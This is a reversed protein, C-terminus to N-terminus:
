MMTLAVMSVIGATLLAVLPAGIRWYDGFRYGGAGMVMLNVPHSFPTLMSTSTALAVAMAFARPDAGAEVAVSIAMPVMVLTTAAGGPLVQTLIVTLVTLIALLVIPDNVRDILSRAVTEAAGSRALALSMPLMGGVLVVSRWDISRYAEDTTLCRSLLMVTAGTFLVLATSNRFVVSAVLTAGLISLAMPIKEVILEEPSDDQGILVLDQEALLAQFASRPGQMLLLDGFRLKIDALDGEISDGSRLISLVSIGGHNERFALGKLSNGAYRSRPPIVAEMLAVRRSALYRTPRKVRVLDLGAADLVERERPLGDLILVDGADLRLTSEPARRQSGDPHVVAIVVGGLLQAIGSVGLTAGVLPSTPRILVSQLRRKMQYVEELSRRPTAGRLPTARDPLLHGSFFFLYLLGALALPGGVPAFDMLGFPELGKQRLIEGAVINSTTLLTAMGGLQTALGLPLLLKSPSIQKRRLADSVGPLLVASAAVNNMVLSLTASVSLIAGRLVNSRGASVTVLWHGLKQSVGSRTLSGTFVFAAILVVIADSSFGSFAEAPTVYGLFVLVLLTLIAIVDAPIRDTAFAIMAAALVGLLLAASGTM